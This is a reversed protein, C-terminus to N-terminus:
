MYEYLEKIPIIINYIKNGLIYGLFVFRIFRYKKYLALIGKIKKGWNESIQGPSSNQIMLIEPITVVDYFM